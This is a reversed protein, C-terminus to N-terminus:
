QMVVSKDGIFWHHVIMQGFNSGWNVLLKFRVWYWWPDNETHTVTYRRRENAPHMCLIIGTGDWGGQDLVKVLWGVRVVMEILWLNCQNSMNVVGSATVFCITLIVNRKLTDIKIAPFMMLMANKLKAPMLTVLSSLAVVRMTSSLMLVRTMQATDKASDHCGNLTYSNMMCHTPNTKSM